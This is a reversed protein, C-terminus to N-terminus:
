LCVRNLEKENNLWILVKIRNEYATIYDPNLEISKNLDELAKDYRNMRFYAVGRNNYIFHNNIDHKIARNCVIICSDLIYKDVYIQSLRIYSEKDYSNVKQSYYYYFIASDSENLQYYCNGIYSLVYSFNSDLLFANYYDIIANRYDNKRFKTVAREYYTQPDLTDLIIASNFYLIASDFLGKSCFIIGLNKYSLKDYPNYILASKLYSIAKVTDNLSYYLHSLHSYADPNKPDLELAKCYDILALYKDKKITEYYLGRNCILSAIVEKSSNTKLFSSSRLLYKVPYNVGFQTTYANIDDPFNFIRGNDNTEIFFVTNQNSYKVLIHYPLFSGTCSLHLKSAISLYLITKNLCKGCNYKFIQTLFVCSDNYQIPKEIFIKKNILRIIETDNKFYISEKAIISILSDIIKLYKDIDIEPYIQKEIKLSIAALDILSDPQELYEKETELNILSQAFTSNSLIIFLLLLTKKICQLSLGM